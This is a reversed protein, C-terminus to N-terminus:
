CPQASMLGSRRRSKRRLWVYFFDSSTPLITVNDYYPPDTSIVAGTSEQVVRARADRQLVEWCQAQSERFRNAHAASRGQAVKSLGLDMSM